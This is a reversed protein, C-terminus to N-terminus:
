TKIQNKICHGEGKLILTFTILYFFPAMAPHFNIGSYFPFNVLLMIYYFKLSFVIKKDYYNFVKKIKCIARFLIMAFIFLLAGGGIFLLDFVNNHAMPLEPFGLIGAGGALGIGTILSIAGYKDILKSPLDWLRQMISEILSKDSGEEIGLLVNFYDFIWLENNKMFFGLLLLIGFMLFIINMYARKRVFFYLLLVLFVFLNAFAAKQLTLIMAFSIVFLLIYKILSNNVYFYVLPLVFGGAVGLTTLGGIMSAYREKGMRISSDHLWGIEGFYHQYIVSISGVILVFIYGGFLLGIKEANEVFFFSMFVFPIMLFFRGISEVTLFSADYAFTIIFSYLYCCIFVLFLLLGHRSVNVLGKKKLFFYILLMLCTLGLLIAVIIEYGAIIRKFTQFSVMFFCLLILSVLYDEVYLKM